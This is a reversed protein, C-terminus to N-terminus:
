DRLTATERIVRVYVSMVCLLLGMRDTVGFRAFMRSLYTRITSHKLGLQQAIQKDKKGHLILHVVSAQSPSLRLARVVKSWEGPTLELRPSSVLTTGSDVHRM